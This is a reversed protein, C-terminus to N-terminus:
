GRRTDYRAGRRPAANGSVGRPGDGPGAERRVTVKQGRIQSARLADIIADALGAPVEVLAHTDAMKIAGIVYSPIGAEGTIAGVLDGPRVGAARGGGIYLVVMPGTAAGERERDRARAAPAPARLSDETSPTTVREPGPGATATAPTEDSDHILTVAAAAIDFIDFEQALTEIVSRADDFGGRAIRARLQERTAELRRARLDAISPLPLVEIKQRTLGEVSTLFRRERPQALTIAVGERGIRGTRGIRHVYVEPSTPVDFNIVHSVHDIDLGRAAVDTAVLIDAQEKRFSQMVRDRQKQALGGHLAQAGFGHAKLTDALEDVEIRTRCFVIASKPNEFELVRVLASMKQPRGIVYAVQRIRPLKGAPRKEHAITVRSPHKLHRGAIAAIRPAMTAAFLATQRTDPTQAIIADIDEAFGMDLMEDAEDLVLVILGSLDLTQRRLHDLARGPTAVVIDAGRRLARIQPDMPAGGYLPVVSLPLGKSYKHVAESVQMALERTPVLVLARTGPSKRPPQHSLRDLMPLTFAATKGTGTGALGILDKGERLLPIADRQIPTPEEYGLAAVSAVLKPALGLGSFGSEPAPPTTTM